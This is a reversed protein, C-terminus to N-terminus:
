VFSVEGDDIRAILNEKGLRKVLASWLDWAELVGWGEVNFVLMRAPLGPEIVRPREGLMVYPASFLAELVRRAARPGRFGQLRAVLLLARAEEWPDPPLWGANDTGVGVLDLKSLGLAVPPLGLGHWMNSRVCYVLGTGSESLMELDGASLHTGHVIATFGAELALELDGARRSRPTEAVHVMSPRMSALRSLEGKDYDLPSSLGVGDCGEPFRPGPRGLVVVRVGEPVGELAQRAALCGLGGGERFDVLLGVGVRWALTYYDRIAEVLRSMATSELLRHKLGSPPSVLEELKLESGYEPFAHDASHVHALAPQPAVVISPGGIVRGQCTSASEVSEIIGDRVSICADRVVELEGGVLAIGARIMYAGDM